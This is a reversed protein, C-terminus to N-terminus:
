TPRGLALVVWPAQCGVMEPVVTRVPRIIAARVLAVRVMRHVLGVPLLLLFGLRRVRYGRLQYRRRHRRDVVRVIRM